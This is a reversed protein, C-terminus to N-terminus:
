HLAYLNPIHKRYRRRFAKVPAVAVYDFPYYLLVSDAISAGGPQSMQFFPELRKADLDVWSWIISLTIAVITPFYATLFVTASTFDDQSAAFVVGGDRLSIQSLYEFVGISILLCVAISALFPTKLTTPKWTIRNSMPQPYLNASVTQGTQWSDARKSGPRLSPSIPRIAEQTGGITVAQVNPEQGSDATQPGPAQAMIADLIPLKDGFHVHLNRAVVQLVAISFYYALHM